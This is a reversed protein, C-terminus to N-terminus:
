IIIMFLSEYFGVRYMFLLGVVISDEDKYNAIYLTVAISDKDNM